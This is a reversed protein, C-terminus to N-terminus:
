LFFGLPCRSAFFLAGTIFLHFPMSGLENDFFISSMMMTIFLLPIYFPLFPKALKVEKNFVKYWGFWDDM